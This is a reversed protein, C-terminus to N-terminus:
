LLYNNLMQTVGCMCQVSRKKSSVTDNDINQIVCVYQVSVFQQDEGSLTVYFYLLYKHDQLM